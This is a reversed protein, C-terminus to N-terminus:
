LFFRTFGDQQNRKNDGTFSGAGFLFTSSPHLLPLCRTPDRPGTIRRSPITQVPSLYCNSRYLTSPVEHPLFSPIQPFFQTRRRRVRLQTVESLPVRPARPVPVFLFVVAARYCSYVSSHLNLCAWTPNFRILGPRSALTFGFLHGAEVNRARFCHRMLTEGVGGMDHCAAWKIADMGSRSCTSHVSINIYFFELVDIM